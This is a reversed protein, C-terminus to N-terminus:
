NSAATDRRVAVVAFWIAWGLVFVLDVIELTWEFPRAGALLKCTALELAFAGLLAGGFLLGAPHYRNEQELYKL